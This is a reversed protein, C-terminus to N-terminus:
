LYMEVFKLQDLENDGSIEDVVKEWGGEEHGGETIGKLTFM